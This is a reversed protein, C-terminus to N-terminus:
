GVQESKRLWKVISASRYEKPMHFGDLGIQRQVVAAAFMSRTSDAVELIMQGRQVDFYLGAISPEERALTVLWGEDPRLRNSGTVQLSRTTAVPPQHPATPEDQRKDCGSIIVFGAISTVFLYAERHHSM